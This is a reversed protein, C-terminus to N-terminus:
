MMPYIAHNKTWLESTCKPVRFQQGKLYGGSDWGECVIPTKVTKILEIVYTKKNIKIIRAPAAWCQGCNTWHAEVEAGLCITKEFEKLKTELESSMRKVKM